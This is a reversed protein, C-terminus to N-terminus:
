SAMAEHRDAAAFLDEAFRPNTRQVYTAWTRLEASERVRNRTPREKASAPGLHLWAAELWRGIPSPGSRRAINALRETATDSYIM